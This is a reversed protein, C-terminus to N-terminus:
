AEGDPQASKCKVAWYEFFKNPFGLFPYPSPYSDPGIVRVKLGLILIWRKIERRLFGLRQFEHERHKVAVGLKGFTLSSEDVMKSSQKTGIFIPFSFGLKKIKNNWAARFKM